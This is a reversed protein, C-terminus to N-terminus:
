ISNIQKSYNNKISMAKCAVSETLIIELSEILSVSKNHKINMKVIIKENSHGHLHEEFEMYEVKKTKIDDIKQQGLYFICINHGLRSKGFKIHSVVFIEIPDGLQFNKQYSVKEMPLDFYIHTTEGKNEAHGTWSFDPYAARENGTAEELFKTTIHFLLEEMKLDSM